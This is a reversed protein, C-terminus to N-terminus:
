HSSGPSSAAAGARLGFPDLPGLLDGAVGLQDEGFFGRGVGVDHKRSGNEEDHAFRVGLRVLAGGRGIRVFAGAGGGDRLDQPCQPIGIIEDGLDAADDDAVVAEPVPYVELDDAVGREQGIESSCRM